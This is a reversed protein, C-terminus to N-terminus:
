RFGHHKMESTIGVDDCIFLDSGSQTSNEYMPNDIIMDKMDFTLLEFEHNRYLADGMLNDIPM